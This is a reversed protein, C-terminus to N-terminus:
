SCQPPMMFARNKVAAIKAVPKSTPAHELASSVEVGVLRAGVVEAVGVAVVVVAVVVVAVAVVVVVVM